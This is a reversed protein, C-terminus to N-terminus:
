NNPLTVADFFARANTEITYEQDLLSQAHTKLNEQLAKDKILTEIANRLQDINEVDVVLAFGRERAYQSLFSSAPAHVLIPRGSQLYEFTKGPIAMEIVEPATDDWSLPLFLIDASSQIDSMQSHPATHVSVHPYPAFRQALADIRRPVYLEIRVDPLDRTAEALNVISQEQAFYIGGTYLIRYPPTHPTHNSSVPRSQQPCNRVVTYNFRDGYKREYLLRHGDSMVVIAHANTFLIPEFIHALIDWITGFHNWRYLDLLYVTYPVRTFVSLIYTLFLAPGRDAIGVIMGIDEKRIIHRARRYDRFLGTIVQLGHSPQAAELITYSTPDFQSLLQEISHLSAGSLSPNQKPIILVRERFSLNTM